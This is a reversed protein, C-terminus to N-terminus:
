AAGLAAIRADYTSDLILETRSARPEIIYAVRDLTGVFEGDANMFDNPYMDLFGFRDARIKGTREPVHGEPLTGDVEHM